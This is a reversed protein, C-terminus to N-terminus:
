QLTVTGSSSRVGHQEVDKGGDQTAARDGSQMSRRALRERYRQFEANQVRMFERAKGVEIARVTDDDPISLVSGAKLRNINNDSFAQLNERQLALLM